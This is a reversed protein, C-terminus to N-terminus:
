SIRWILERSSNALFFDCSFTMPTRHGGRQPLQKHGPVLAGPCFITTLLNRTHPASVNMTGVNLRVSSSCVAAQLENAQLENSHCENKTKLVIKTARPINQTADPFPRM